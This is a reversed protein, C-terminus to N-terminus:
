HEKPVELLREIRDGQELRLLVEFGDTVEGFATFAADLHPQSSLTIFFQSGGTDPGALARIEENTGTRAVRGDSVALAQDPSGVVARPHIRGEVFIREPASQLRRDM